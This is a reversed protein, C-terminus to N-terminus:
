RAGSGNKGQRSESIFSLLKTEVMRPNSGELISIVGELIIEHRLQEERNRIKLKGSSPLFFLNASGVGYITAVFAVAIGRGVEGIDDLHQMVQILGLVAGIIGITPSFGGASEFVRPINEEREARNELDVEMIKRLETPETGDVALMLTKKWFTEHIKEVESDLSVIGDKRAKQAYRVMEKVVILPDEGPEFFVHALSAFAAMVVPLPFQVMVAGLTGGFVILAATPQLIQGIKGGELALGLLIGGIALVLGGFTGKDV